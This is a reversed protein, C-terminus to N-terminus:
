RKRRQRLLGGLMWMIVLFAVVALMYKGLIM